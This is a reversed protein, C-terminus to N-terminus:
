FHKEVWPKVVDVLLQLSEKANPKHKNFQHDIGPLEIFMSHTDQPLQSLWEKTNQKRILIDDGGQVCLVSAHVNPASAMINITAASDLYKQTMPCEEKGFLMSRGKEQIEKVLAPFKEAFIDAKCVGALAVFAKVQPDQAVIHSVGAGMSHAILCFEKVGEAKYHELVTKLEEVQKHYTSEEFKGESDGNGSFDFRFSPQLEQALRVLISSDKRSGLGHCVIILKDKVEGELIGALAEGEKNKITLKM